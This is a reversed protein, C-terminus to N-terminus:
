SHRASLARCPSEQRPLIPRGQTLHTGLGINVNHRSEQPRTPGTAAVCVAVPLFAILLVRRYARPNKSRVFPPHVRENTALVAIRQSPGQTEPPCSGAIKASSPKPLHSSRCDTDSFRM